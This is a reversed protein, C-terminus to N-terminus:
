AEGRFRGAQDQELAGDSGYSAGGPADLQRLANHVSAVHSLVDSLVVLRNRLGRAEAPTASAVDLRVNEMSAALERLESYSGQSALKAALAAQGSVESWSNRAGDM